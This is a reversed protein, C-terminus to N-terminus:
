KLQMEQFTEMQKLDMTMEFKIDAHKKIFAGMEAVKPNGLFRLYPPNKKYAPLFYVSPTEHTEIRPPQNEVNVDYSLFKVSKIGMQSFKGALDNIKAAVM